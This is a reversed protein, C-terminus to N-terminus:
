SSRAPDASGLGRLTNITVPFFTLFAAIVSVAGWVRSRGRSSRTIWVVVMPAIPLIPITQSAVIYPLFGRQLVRSDSLVVAIM